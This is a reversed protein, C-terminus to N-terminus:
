KGLAFCHIQRYHVSAMSWAWDRYRACIGDLCGVFVETLLHAIFDTFDCVNQVVGYIPGRMGIAEMAGEMDDEVNGEIDDGIDAGDAPEPANQQQGDIAPALPPPADREVEVANDDWDGGDAHVDVDEDDDGAEVHEYSDDEDYDDDGSDDDLGHPIAPPNSGSEGVETPPGFYKEHERRMASDSLAEALTLEEQDFYGTLRSPGGELEEPARYTALNPSALPTPGTSRSSGVAPPTGAPSPFITTLLPPRRLASPSGSPTTSKEAFLKEAVSANLSPVGSTPSSPSSLTSTSSEPSDPTDRPPTVDWVLNGATVDSSSNSPSISGATPESVSRRRSYSPPRFTFQFKSQETTPSPEDLPPSSLSTSTGAAKAAEARRIAAAGVAARINESNETIQYESEDSSSESGMDIKRRSRSRSWSGAARDTDSTPTSEEDEDRAKGKGKERRRRLVETRRASSGVAHPRMKRNGHRDNPRRNALPPIVPPANDTHSPIELLRIEAMPLQAPPQPQPPAPVPARGAALAPLPAIPELPPPMDREDQPFDEDEFVGPRANQSIWERLLFIAVFTLVILSAIIQGAFIDASMANWFSRSTTREWLTMNALSPYTGNGETMNHIQYFSTHSSIPPTPRPRDSIWWARDLFLLCSYPLLLFRCVDFRGDHFVNEMDVRHGLPASGVM